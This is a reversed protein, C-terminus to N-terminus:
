SRRNERRPLDFSAPRCLQYAGAVEFLSEQSILERSLKAASANLRMSALIRLEDARRPDNKLMAAVRGQQAALKSSTKEVMSDCWATESRLNGM